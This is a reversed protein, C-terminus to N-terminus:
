RVQRGRHEARLRARPYSDDNDTSASGTSPYTTRAAFIPEFTTPWSMAPRGNEKQSIEDTAVIDVSDV